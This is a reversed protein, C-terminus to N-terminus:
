CPLRFGCAGGPSPRGRHAGDRMGPPDQGDDPTSCRASAPRSGKTGGCTENEHAIDILKVIGSPSHYFREQACIENTARVGYLDLHRISAARGEHEHMLAFTPSTVPIAEPVGLARIQEAVAAYPKHALAHATLPFLDQVDFKTPAAGFSSLEFGAVIEDLNMPATDLM